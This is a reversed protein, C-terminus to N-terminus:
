PTTHEGFYKLLSVYMAFAIRKQYAPTLMQEAEYANSLFGVEALVAPGKIRKLLYLTTNKQIERDTPLLTEKFVSQMTEALAKAEDNGDFYLVQSGHWVPSPVSNCHISVFADCQNSKVVALRGKLDERHRRGLLIDEDTALDDDKFRTMYVTAGAQKLLSELELAVKLTIDKENIGNRTRAGGDPGGHGADVVIAKGVLGPENALAIGASTSWSFFSQVAFTWLFVIMALINKERKGWCRRRM